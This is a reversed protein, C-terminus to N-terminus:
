ESAGANEVIKLLTDATRETRQRNGYLCMHQTEAWWLFDVLKHRPERRILLGYIENIYGDYEDQAQPVGAVGIPDWERMLVDRIADQYSKARQLRESMSAGLRLVMSEAVQRQM